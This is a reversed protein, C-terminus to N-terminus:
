CAKYNWCPRMLAIIEANPKIAEIIADADKYAMPAEDITEELISTSMIGRMERQFDELQLERRAEGRSMCRGAGHPLSYNWNENGLARVFLIGDRMNLPILGLEDKYGSIAGKRIIKNDVDVYNHVCTIFTKDQWGMYAAVDHFIAQHSYYSFDNCIRMDDLYDNMIDGELYCLDNEPEFLARKNWYDVVIQIFDTRGINRLYAIESNKAQHYNAIRQDRLQIAINQYYEAIQKGLNRSGSHIVFWYEGNNADFDLEIYHNGGGLTGMSRRLRAHNQLMDWCHLKEYPFNISFESEQNRVAFGTPITGRCICDLCLLDSDTFSGDVKFASVRCAIDVGVTAPVIKDSFTLTSGVVAGKGAHADPMIRIKSDCYATSNAFKEIQDITAQDNGVMYNKVDAM